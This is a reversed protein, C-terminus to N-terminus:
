NGGLLLQAEEQTIGLRDLLLQKQEAKAQEETIRTALAAQHLEYQAFEEDNMERQIFEGTEVNIIRTNPRTM